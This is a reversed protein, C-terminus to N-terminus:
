RQAAMAANYKDYASDIARLVRALMFKFDGPVVVFLEAAFTPDGDADLYAKVVKTDGTAANIGELRRSRGLVSKDEATFAIAVRLFLPDREDPYVVYTRGERRFRVNGANNLEPKFGEAALAQSYIDQLQARTYTQAAAPPAAALLLAGAAACSMLFPKIKSM